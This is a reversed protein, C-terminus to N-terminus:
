KKQRKNRSYSQQRTQRVLCILPGASVFHARKEEAKYHGASERSVSDTDAPNNRHKWLESM